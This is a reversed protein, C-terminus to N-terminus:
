GQYGGPSPRLPVSPVQHEIEHFEKKLKKIQHTNRDVKSVSDIVQVEIRKIEDLESDVLQKIGEIRTTTDGTMKELDDIHKEINDTERRVETVNGSLVALNGEDADLRRQLTSKMDEINKALATNETEVKALQDSLDRLRYRISVAYFRRWFRYVFPTLVIIALLLWLVSSGLLEFLLDM